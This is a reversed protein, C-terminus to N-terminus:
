SEVLPHSSLNFIKVTFRLERNKREKISKNKRGGIVGRTGKRRRNKKKPLPPPLELFNNFGDGILETPDHIDRPLVQTSLSSSAIGVIPTTAGVTADM